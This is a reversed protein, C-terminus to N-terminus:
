KLVKRILKDIERNHKACHAAEEKSVRSMEEETFKSRAIETTLMELNLQQVLMEWQRGSLTRANLVHDEFAAWTIPVVAKVIEAMAEGYARIEAQAHGDLRLRLFHLLNHLDQKWIFSSYIATPLVIRAQERAIGADLLQRYQAYADAYTASIECILEDVDNLADVSGQRNVGDQGRLEEPLCFEDQAESYRLSMENVSAARHRFWQRIVFIPAKVHFKFEVMEFPSTHRNEMLHNILGSGDRHATTGTQYSVRAADIIAQDDGMVDVLRVFGKDLVQKIAFLEPRTKSLEHANM